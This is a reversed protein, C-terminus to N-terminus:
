GAARNGIRLVGAAGSVPRGFSARDGAARGARHAAENVNSPASGGCSRLHIGQEKLYAKIATNKVVMVERGNGIQARKSREVLEVLRDCIRNCCAETFSRIIIRRESKPALCGILHKFLEEHVFDALTDLLWMAFETDSPLGVCKFVGEGPKHHQRNRSHFIEVGCFRAVGYSLRWKIRHPDRVDSPDVHMMMKEEKTFQVEANSIDYADMMASVRDLADMMEAETCGNETTKSMLARIKEVRKARIEEVRSM